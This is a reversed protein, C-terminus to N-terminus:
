KMGISKKRETRELITNDILTGPDIKHGKSKCNDSAAKGFKALFTDKKASFHGKQM